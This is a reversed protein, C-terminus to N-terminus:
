RDRNWVGTPRTKQMAEHTVIQEKCHNAHDRLRMRNGVLEARIATTSSSEKNAVIRLFSNGIMTYTGDASAQTELFVVRDAVCVARLPAFCGERLCRCNAILSM